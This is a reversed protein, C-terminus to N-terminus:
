KKLYIRQGKSQEEGEPFGNININTHKVKDWLERLITENLFKNKKKTENPHNRCSQRGTWQVEVRYWSIEQQNRISYKLIETITNKLDKQNKEWLKM